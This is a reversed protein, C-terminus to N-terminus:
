YTIFYSLSHINSSFKFTFAFIFIWFAIFAVFPLFAFFPRLNCVAPISLSLQVADWYFHLSYCFLTLATAKKPKNLDAMQETAAKRTTSRQSGSHQPAWGASVLRVPTSGSSAPLSHDLKFVLRSSLSTKREKKRETQRREQPSIQMANVWHPTTRRNLPQFKQIGHNTTFTRSTVFLRM